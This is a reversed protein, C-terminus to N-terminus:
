IIFSALILFGFAPRSSTAEGLNLFREPGFLPVYPSFFSTTDLCITSDSFKMSM